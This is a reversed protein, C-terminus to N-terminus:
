ERWVHRYTTGAEEEEVEVEEEEEEEEALEQSLPPFLNLGIFVRSFTLIALTISTRGQMWM